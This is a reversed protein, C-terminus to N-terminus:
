VQRGNCCWTSAKLVVDLEALNIHRDEHVPQLWNADEANEIVVGTALSSTDVWVTVDKGNM